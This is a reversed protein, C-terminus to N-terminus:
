PRWTDLEEIAARKLAQIDVVRRGERTTVQPIKVQIIDDRISQWQVQGRNDRSPSHKSQSVRIKATDGELFIVKYRYNISKYESSWSLGKIYFLDTPKSSSPKAGRIQMIKQKRKEQLNNLSICGNPFECKGKMPCTNCLHIDDLIVEKIGKPLDESDEKRRVLLRKLKELM